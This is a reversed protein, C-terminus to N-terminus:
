GVGRVVRWAFNDVSGILDEDAKDCALDFLSLATQDPSVDDAITVELTVYITKM